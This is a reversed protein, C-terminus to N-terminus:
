SVFKVAKRNLQLRRKLAHVEVPFDLFSNAEDLSRFFRANRIHFWILKVFYLQLQYCHTRADETEEGVHVNTNRYERLHELLQRHYEHDKFIFSCRQVTKEYDAQGPTTLGELAAWLRVYAAGCDRDDLARVFRLLSSILREGYTSATIRRLAWQSNRRAIAPKKIQFISAEAFSPEFWISEKASTGDPFHLTHQSGLRVVNIPRLAPAGFAIQWQPNGMLCWLARQLDLARLAKHVAAASSKARIEVIVRCYNPPTSPGSPFHKSLLETRSRFRRPYDGALFRITAGLLKIQQPIDNRDLSIATLLNYSQESTALRETLEQNVAALFTDPNLEGKVKALGRWVLTSTNLERAIEPFDLMSHLAPLCDQLEFGTFSAGGTPNVTRISDIKTLIVAPKFRPGKKWKITM